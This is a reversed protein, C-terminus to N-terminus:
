HALRRSRAKGGEFVPVILELGGATRILSGHAHTDQNSRSLARASCRMLVEWGRTVALFPCTIMSSKDPAPPTEAQCTLRSGRIGLRPSCGEAIASSDLPRHKFTLLSVGEADKVLSLEIRLEECTREGRGGNRM